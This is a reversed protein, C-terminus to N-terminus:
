RGVSTLHANIGVAAIPLQLVGVRRIFHLYHMVLAESSLIKHSELDFM